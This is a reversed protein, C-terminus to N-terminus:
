AVKKGYITNESNYKVSVYIVHGKGHFRKIYDDEKTVKETFMRFNFM